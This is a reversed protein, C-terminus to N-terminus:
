SAFHVGPGYRRADTDVGRAVIRIQADLGTNMLETLWGMLDTMATGLPQGDFEDAALQVVEIVPGVLASLQDREKIFAEYRAVDEPRHGSHEVVNRLRRLDRISERKVKRWEVWEPTDDPFRDILRDEVVGTTSTATLSDFVSALADLASMSAGISVNVARRQRDYWQDDTWGDLPGRDQLLGLAVFSDLLEAIKDRLWAMRVDVAGHPHDPDDQPSRNM